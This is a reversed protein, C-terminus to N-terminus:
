DVVRRQRKYEVYLADEYDNESGSSIYNYIKVRKLLEKKIEKQDDLELRSVEEIISDLNSIGILIGGINLKKVKRAASAACCPKQNSM